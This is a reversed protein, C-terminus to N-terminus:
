YKMLVKDETFLMALIEDAGNEETSLMGQRM